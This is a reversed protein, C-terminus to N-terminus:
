YYGIDLTKSVYYIAHPEKGIRQGIVIRVSHDSADCM